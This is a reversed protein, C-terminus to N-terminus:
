VRRPSRHGLEFPAQTAQRIYSTFATRQGDDCWNYLDTSYERLVSIHSRFREEGANLAYVGILKAKKKYTLKAKNLTIAKLAAEGLDVDSKRLDLTAMIHMSGNKLAFDAVLDEEKSICFDRVVRHDEILEGKGALVKISRLQLSIETNIRTSKRKSAIKPKMVLSKLIDAVRLEYDDMREVRMFAFDSVHFVPDIKPNASLFELAASTDAFATRLRAKVDGAYDQWDAGTLARMKSLETFRVDLQDKALVVIGVNVREGRIPNPMAMLIAYKFIHAM